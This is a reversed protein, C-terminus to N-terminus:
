NKVITIFIKETKSAKTLLSFLSSFTKRSEIVRESKGDWKGPLLCGETDDKTNGPHIRIGQYLPVDKLLPLLKAFKNSYSFVIEYRGIPIATNAYVKESPQSTSTLGRDKDELIHCIFSDNLSLEGITCSGSFFKRTLKLEM